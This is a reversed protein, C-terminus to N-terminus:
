PGARARRGGISAHRFGKKSPGLAVRMKRSENM